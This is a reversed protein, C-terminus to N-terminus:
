GFMLSVKLILSHVNGTPLLLFLEKVNKSTVVNMKCYVGDVAPILQQLWRFQMKNSLCSFSDAAKAIQATRKTM